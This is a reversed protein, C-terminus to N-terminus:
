YKESLKKLRKEVSKSVDLLLLVGSNEGNQDPGVLSINGMRKSGTYYRGTIITSGIDMKTPVFVGFVKPGIYFTMGHFKEISFAVSPLSGSAVGPLARGGPLKESPLNQLRSDFIDDLSVSMSMLTGASEYDPEIAVYSNPYKPVNYRLGGELTINEFVMSILLNDKDLHLAPGDVGPIDMNKKSDGCSTTFLSMTVIFLGIILNRSRSYTIRTM